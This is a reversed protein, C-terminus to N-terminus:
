GPRQVAVGDPEAAVIVACVECGLVSLGNVARGVAYAGYGLEIYGDGLCECLVSLEDDAGLVAVIDAAINLQARIDDPDGCVALCDCRINVTHPSILQFVM